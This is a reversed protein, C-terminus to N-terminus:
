YFREAEFVAAAKKASGGNARARTQNAVCVFIYFLLVRLNICCSAIICAHIYIIYINYIYIIFIYICLLVGRRRAM